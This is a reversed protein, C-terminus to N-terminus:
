SKAFCQRESTNDPQQVNLVGIDAEGPDLGDESIPSHASVAVTAHGPIAELVESNEKAVRQSEIADDVLFPIFTVGDHRATLLSHRYKSFRKMHRRRFAAVQPSIDDFRYVRVRYRPLDLSKLIGVPKALKLSYDDFHFESNIPKGLSWISNRTLFITGSLDKRGSLKLYPRSKVEDQEYLLGEKSVQEHDHQKEDSLQSKVAQDAPVSSHKQRDGPPLTPASTPLKHDVKKRNYQIAKKSKGKRRM